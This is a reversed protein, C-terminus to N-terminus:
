SGLTEDSGAELAEYRHALLIGITTAVHNAMAGAAAERSDTDRPFIVSPFLDAIDLVRTRWYRVENSLATRVEDTM